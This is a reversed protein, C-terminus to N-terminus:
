FEAWDSDREAAGGGGAAKKKLRPTVVPEAAMARQVQQQQVLAPSAAASPIAAGGEEVKFFAMLRQMEAAQRELVRAAATSQEVLSSNQQTMDDMEAIAVNVEDIGQTQESSASAIEAVIEAVKSISSMIEGLATGANNVLEVGEKIQSNSSTILSKIENSAQASRQALTRVEEAVVAFGKGAEGARAAEVAANLALLNTQFALDDIVGIIDSVKQSSEEIVGMAAVAEKAVDGGNVAMERSQNALKNADDANDANQKVTVALEEMSAATEELASAQAETRRSLDDSGTSLEAAASAVEGASSNVQTVISTLQDATENASNKLLEFTGEYDAEIKETLNGKALEALVRALDDTASQTNACIANMNNALSLMFGEKDDTSVRKSFEGAAAADVVGNIEAEIALEQTMDKWEVVTGLREGDAGTVPNVVLNFDFIGVKINSDITTTLNQMMGRQHAPNKHFIDINTGILNNADFKPLVKRLEAEAEHMMKRLIDNMYVINLDKDAVMVNTSANDLAIKIRQNDNALQTDAREKALKATVDEWEVVTGNREGTADLIPSVVLDFEIGALELHTEITSTLNGLIGRQHAPNKHFVDINTGILKSADLRPLVTKLAAENTRMMDVMTENMYVINYDADAVMVNTKASDLATKIRLNESSLLADNRVTALKETVDEWEVITGSRTGSADRIPSVVLDFEIGALELHTEITSTLNNLIGRQHAPDKHFVDINTGILKSANLNPLVTRLKAENDRMMEMMTENMYIINYDPDAVMVNTKAGDLATKIRLNESSREADATETALKETVDAWEMVAGAPKGSADNIRNIVLDFEIGAVEIHSESTVGSNDLINCLCSPDKHFADIKAGVPNNFDLARLDTRLQTEKTKLMDQMTKNMYIVTHDQNVLMINTRVGDTATKINQNIINQLKQETVDTAYKVVKFPKGNVDLIPNYSAQIWVEKGGKGIRKYEMAEHEGRNLKEWFSRYESSQKFEPEVFMSHHQGKIEDLRYGMANLFHDNATIITGDMNFEIVAQAKAIANIQGSFNAYQLKQETVDTAYKVVKFPKGNLDLIPNYSAQIWVEKGGKGIRKYEMAEHEGRNLKEWFSRYESSQKFEPEVFMSHHQGKIEDLRYGMANLFHDNATIITGDMNFEIVAQAKAIANIQGSFNAYQLKQETVDTAYKVVKFPKGDVDLIPNYSAQIWVEKGGKGIRKYERSEYEGRNLKEWFSRYESSEKFEPEVFMSHHQGKIEDLRYGVANLFHDNATIITGDMNFEIVAQAKAIANIQGTTEARFRTNDKATDRIIRLSRFIQILDGAGETEPLDVAVDGKALRSLVEQMASLQSILRSRAIWSGLAALATLAAGTLPITMSQSQVGITVFIALSTVLLLTIILGLTSSKLTSLITPTAPTTM